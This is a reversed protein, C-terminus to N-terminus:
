TSALSRRPEIRRSARLTDRGHTRCAMAGPVGAWAHRPTGRREVLERCASEDGGRERRTWGPAIAQRRLLRRRRRAESCRAQLFGAGTMVSEIRMASEPSQGGQGFRALDFLFSNHAGPAPPPASRWADRDRFIPIPEPPLLPFSCHAGTGRRAPDTGPLRFNRARRLAASGFLLSSVSRVISCSASADTLRSSARRLRPWLCTDPPGERFRQDRGRECIGSNM